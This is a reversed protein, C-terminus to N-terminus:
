KGSKVAGDFKRPRKGSGTNVAAMPGKNAKQGLETEEKKSIDLLTLLGM